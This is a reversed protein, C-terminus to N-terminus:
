RIIMKKGNVIYVGAPLERTVEDMSMEEEIKILQGNLNYIRLVDEDSIASILEIIGTAMGENISISRTSSTTTMYAEFPHVPRLDSIFSSGEISGGTKSEIDNLVNLALMNSAKELNSFSPVFTRDSYYAKNLVGTKAIAVNESLFTVSGNLLFGSKYEPNNPMSIIYPTNAKISEAMTWGSGNLEMLWFPKTTDGSKWKAFPVIEGKSQHTVKQVDFPLAITEWGKAEGVGTQMGYNHTYSIKQATFAQPCYFTNGSAADTLTINSANGNVVVNKISNPAYQTQKVYLLLNPNSVQETFMVDPYWIIAALDSNNALAGYDIGTVTWEANQYSVKAPIELTLGYEGKALRITHEDSSVVTYNVNEASFAQLIEEFEVEVTTNRSLSNITYIGNLVYSTVVTNNEKVSKIRYGNDPTISINVTTGENVTFSSTKGRITTGNYSASGNGSTSISLTYNTTPIAEFEVEVTTNRRISNITYQNNSFTVISNNVKVNKIRSGSDPTFSITASTDQNLTFSSTKNRITTGNYSASGNGTSTISLTYTPIALFELQVTLNNRINSFTLTNNYLNSTHNGEIKAINVRYGDDPSISIIANAGEEVTFTKTEKRISTGSYSASGNGSVTISLTYTTPPIVEFEVSITTNSNIGSITYQNNSVNSTVNSNNVSVNKIRYGNDPTFTITANTGENVTFTRTEGRVVTSNYSASGSGSAKITLTYTKVSIAEFVVVVNTNKSINSLTYSYGSLKSTVDINDVKVSKIQYGNDPIFYITPSSGKAVDFTSTKDRVKSTYSAYGGGTATISLTYTTPPIAEFVVEVSTNKSINSVPYRNNALQSTVDTNDVKVSKIQYGNDPYFYINATNGKGVTFSSTTNRIKNLNYSAYGSGTATISLTYTTTPIAEFEVEVTTNENISSITYKNNSFSATSDNVKVSKIRYGNDPSFTITASAGANLTFSSTKGRIVTGSYSASGCGSSTISLTYSTQSNIEVVEKFYKIWDDNLEFSKSNKLYTEKTGIPVYLIADSSIGYFVYGGVKPPSLANIFVNKLSSCNAFAQMYISQVSNSITVSALSSCGM